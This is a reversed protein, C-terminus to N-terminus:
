DYVRDFSYVRRKEKPLSLEVLQYDKNDTFTCQWQDTMKHGHPSPDLVLDKMESDFPPRIRVFVSVNEEIIESRSSSNGGHINRFSMYNDSQDVLNHHFPYGESERM